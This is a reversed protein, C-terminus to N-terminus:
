AQQKKGFKVDFEKVEGTAKETQKIVGILATEDCLTQYKISAAIKAEKSLSANLM